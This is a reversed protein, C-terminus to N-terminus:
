GTQQPAEEIKFDWKDRLNFEPKLATYGCSILLKSIMDVMYQFMHKYDITTTFTYVYVCQSNMDLMVLIWNNNDLNVPYLMNNVNLFENSCNTEGLFIPM